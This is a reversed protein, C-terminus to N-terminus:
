FSYLKEFLEKDNIKVSEIKDPARGVLVIQERLEGLRSVLLKVKQNEKLTKMWSSQNDRTLRMGDASIIEDRANVRGKYFPGDLTVSKVWLGNNKYEFQCGLYANTDKTKIIELGVMKACEDLPLEKTTSLMDSFLSAVSEDALQTIHALVMEKTIGKYDASKYDDWLLRCFDKITKGHKLLHASLCFFVLDGKLYYSTTANASNENPRYLKIWTDFSSDELSVFKKGPNNELRQLSKQLTKAYEENSSVKCTCMILDDVFSTLGETLWHMRTYNEENYNFDVLEFPRIRKVNWTHFFEHSVLGLYNLQGERTELEFPDFQMATSNLHELGGYIGPVFHTMYTYDDYPIEGWFDCISQTITKMDGVLQDYNTPLKGYAIVTHDVGDVKFGTSDHCGIEIPSDILTDYDCAEYIFHSRDSSIDKLGTHIKTWGSPFNLELSLNKMEVQQCGMLLDPLHLFAHDDNVFSNRVSLEFAYVTYSLSVEKLDGSLQSKEKNLRWTNKNEKDFYLAEGSQSLAKFTIINKSYERVLYSGPSWVPLFFDMYQSDSKWATTMTVQVRHTSPNEITINYKISM